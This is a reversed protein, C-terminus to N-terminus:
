KRILDLDRLGTGAILMNKDPIPLFKRQFCLPMKDEAKVALTDMAICIQDPQLTYVLATM